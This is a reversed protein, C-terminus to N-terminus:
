PEPFAFPNSEPKLVFNSQSIYVKIVSQSFPLFM